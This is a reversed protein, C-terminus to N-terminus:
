LLRGGTSAACKDVRTSAPLRSKLGTHSREPGLVPSEDKEKKLHCYKEFSSQTPKLFEERFAAALANWTRRRESLQKYWSYASKKPYMKM